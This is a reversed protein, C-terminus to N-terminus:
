AREFEIRLTPSTLIGLRNLRNRATAEDPVDPHSVWLADREDELAWGDRTLLESLDVGGRRILEIHINM